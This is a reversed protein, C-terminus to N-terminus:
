CIFIMKTHIYYYYSSKDVYHQYCTEDTNSSKWYDMDITEIIGYHQCYLNYFYKRSIYFILIYNGIIIIIVRSSYWYIDYYISIIKSIKIGLPDVVRLWLQVDLPLLRPNCYNVSCVNEWYVVVVWEPGDDFFPVEPVTWYPCKLYLGIPASWTCDFLPVEPVTWYPCKLYLWIPREYYITSIDHNWVKTLYRHGWLWGLM